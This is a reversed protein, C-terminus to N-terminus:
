RMKDWHHRMNISKFFKKLEHLQPKLAQTSEKKVRRKRSVDAVQTDTILRKTGDGTFVPTKEEDESNANESELGSSSDDPEEQTTIM